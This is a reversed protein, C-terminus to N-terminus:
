AGRGRKVALQWATAGAGPKEDTAAKSIWMSGSHTVFSNEGYRGPAWVGCYKFRTEELHTLRAKLAVIQATLGDELERATTGIVEGVSDAIMDLLPDATSPKEEAEPKPVRKAM